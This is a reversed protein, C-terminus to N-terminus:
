RRGGTGKCEHQQRTHPLRITFRSGQGPTSHVTITGKHQETIIFYSVSLGLGTGVGIPKTTFFPEFVRRRVQEEMGPGNDEVEIRVWDKDHRTRLIIRHPTPSGAKAMAHVANKILNLLVQEIETKDCYVQDLRKDYDRIIEIQKFEYNKRLDYDNASLRLVTEMMDTLRIPVIHSESRRSFSLMDNVIRGARVGAEQIGELFSSIGRRAMYQSVRQLDLGLEEAVERNPELDPSLRRVINQSSQLIASLPNNIEHAMGAALGGVSMMKETQVMMQEIRIRNTIDDMRIVAGISGNAVLPYVMVEAYRSEGNHKTILRETRQSEGREIADHVLRLQSELQPMMDIFCKGMAESAPIGTAKEAGTNWETIHGDIDVGVLVSPMSNIINQLYARMRRIEYNARKRATIDEVEAVVRLPKGQADRVLGGRARVDITQGDKRLYRKELECVAAAGRSLLEFHTLTEQMDEPHTFDQISMNLLERTSYGLIMCFTPNVSLLRGELDTTIIGIPANELTLRLQAESQRLQEEARKQETIDEGSSLTGTITGHEDYVISNHWAILREEGTRTLVPNEYHELGTEGNVIKDFVGKVQERGRWPIFYNFWNKGVIEHEHYGLVACGKRNILAVKQDTGILVIIVGAIDLYQQARDRERKLAEEGQKRDTLDHVIGTFLRKNGVKVEAVSLHMPFTTGDKHRGMVERGIGIIKREGTELYNQIFRGHQNRYSAPMLMTINRGLVEESQYGFLREAAPNILQIVGDEDIAIIGDVANDVMAQLLASNATESEMNVLIDSQIRAEMPDGRIDL